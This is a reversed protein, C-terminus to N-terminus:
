TCQQNLPVAGGLWSLVSAGCQLVGQSCPDGGVTTFPCQGNRFNVPCPFGCTVTMTLQSLCSLDLTGSTPDFNVLSSLGASGDDLIDGASSSGYDRTCKYAADFLAPFTVGSSSEIWSMLDTAGSPTTDSFPGLQFAQNYTESWWLEGCVNNADLTCAQLSGGAPPSELYLTSTVLPDPGGGWGNATVASTLLFTRLALDMGATEAPISPADNASFAGTSAFGLFSPLDSMVVSLGDNLMTTLDSSLTSLKNELNSIQIPQTDLSDSPWLAASETTDTPVM